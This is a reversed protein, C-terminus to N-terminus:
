NSDAAIQALFRSRQAAQLIAAQVAESFRYEALAQLGALTTGGPSSVQQRLETASRGSVKLMEAAGLLTQVTLAHATASDLGAAVGGAQMAEALLYVYAPGSGSLATVADLMSETVRQVSGIAAFLSEAIALHKGSAWRGPCIATAALGVAAATNPMSRVMPTQPPLHREIQATEIGALLSIVLQGPHLQEKYSKLASVLDKPKFALIVITAQELRGQARISYREQLEQMRETRIDNIMIQGPKVVGQALMGKIMSEAMAGAGLFYVLSNELM